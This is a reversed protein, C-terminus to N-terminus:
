RLRAAAARLVRVAARQQGRDLVDGEPRPFTTLGLVPVVWAVLPAVAGATTACGSTDSGCGTGTADRDAIPLVVPVLGSGVYFPVFLVELVGALLAAACLLVLGAVDREAAAPRGRPPAPM